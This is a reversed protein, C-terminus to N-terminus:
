HKPLRDLSLLLATTKSAQDAGWDVAIDPKVGEFENSGDARMRACDPMWIVLKSNKLKTPNGGDTFGCGVGMTKVGMTKAVGNDVLTAAFEESASATNPDTMIYLRSSYPRDFELKEQPLTNPLAQV